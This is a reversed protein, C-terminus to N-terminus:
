TKCSGLLSLAWPQICLLRCSWLFVVSLATCIQELKAAQESPAHVLFSSSDPRVPTPSCGLFRKRRVTM